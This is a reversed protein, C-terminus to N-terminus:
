SEQGRFSRSFYITLNGSDDIEEGFNVPLIYAGEDDILGLRICDCERVIELIKDKDTVERDKRRM